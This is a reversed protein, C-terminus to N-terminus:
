LSARWSCLLLPTYCHGINDCCAKHADMFMNLHVRVQVMLIPGGAAHLLPKIRPMLERWWNAAFGVYTSDATRLKSALDVGACMDTSAIRQLCRYWLLQERRLCAEHLRSPRAPRQAGIGSVENFANGNFSHDANCPGRHLVPHECALHLPGAEDGDHM